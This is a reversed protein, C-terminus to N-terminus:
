IRDVGPHDVDIDCNTNMDLGEVRRRCRLSRAEAEQRRSAGLPKRRQIWASGPFHAELKCPTSALWPGFEENCFTYEGQKPFGRCHLFLREEVRRSLLEHVAQTSAENVAAM